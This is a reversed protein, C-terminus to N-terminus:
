VSQLSLLRDRICMQHLYISETTDKANRSRCSSDAQTNKQFIELLDDKTVNVMISENVSGVYWRKVTEYISGGFLRIGLAAVLIIM